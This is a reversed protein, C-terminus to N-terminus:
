KKGGKKRIPDTGMQKFGLVISDDVWVTGYFRVQHKGDEVVPASAKQVEPRPPKPRLAYSILASVVLILIQWVIQYFAGVVPRGNVYRPEGARVRAEFAIAQAYALVRLWLIQLRFRLPRTM